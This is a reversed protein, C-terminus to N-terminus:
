FAGLALLHMVVLAMRYDNALQEVTLFCWAGFPAKLGLLYRLYDQLKYTLFCRAGYSANLRAHASGTLNLTTTPCFADLVLLHM